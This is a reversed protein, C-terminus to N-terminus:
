PRPTVSCAWEDRLAAWQSAAHAVPPGGYREAQLAEFLSAASEVLSEPVGRERLRLRLDPAHLQPEAIGLERALFASCGAASDLTLQVPDAEPAPKRARRGSMARRMLWWVGVTLAALGFGYWAPPRGYNIFGESPPVPEAAQPLTLESDTLRLATSRTTRYSASSPDFFSFELAPFSDPHAEDLAFEALVTVRQAEREVLRGLLHFGPIADLTLPQWREWNGAGEFVIRLRLLASSTEDLREVQLRVTGVAGNFSEPRNAEPWDLVLLKVAEEVLHADQREGPVKAGFVDTGYESTWSYRAAPQAYLLEGAELPLLVRDLEAIRFMRGGRAEEIVRDARVIEGDFVLRPLTEDLSAAADRLKWADLNWGSDVQVPLDLSRRFPQLMSSELFASEVGVRLTVLVPQERYAREPQARVEVFVPAAQQISVCSGCLVLCALM